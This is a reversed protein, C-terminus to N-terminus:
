KAECLSVSYYFNTKNLPETFVNAFIINNRTVM